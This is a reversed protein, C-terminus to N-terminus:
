SCQEKKEDASEGGNRGCLFSHSARFVAALSLDFGLFGGFRLTFGHFFGQLLLVLCDFFRQLGLAFSGPLSIM